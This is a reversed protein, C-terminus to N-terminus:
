TTAQAVDFWTDCAKALFFMISTIEMDTDSHEKIDTAIEALKETTMNAPTIYDARLRKFLNEYDENDGCTYWDQEICLQRLKYSHLVRTETYKKM